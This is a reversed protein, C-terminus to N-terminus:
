VDEIRLGSPYNPGSVRNAGRDVDLREPPPPPRQHTALLPLISAKFSKIGIGGKGM